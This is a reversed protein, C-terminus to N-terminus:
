VEPYQKMESIYSELFYTFFIRDQNSSQGFRFRPNNLFWVYMSIVGYISFNSFQLKTWIWILTDKLSSSYFSISLLWSVVFVFFTGKNKDIYMIVSNGGDRQIGEFRARLIARGNPRHVCHMCRVLIIGCGYPSLTPKSNNPVFTTKMFLAFSPCEGRFTHSYRLNGNEM